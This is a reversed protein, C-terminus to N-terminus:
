RKNLSRKLTKLSTTISDPSSMAINKVENNTISQSYDGNLTQYDEKIFEDVFKETKEIQEKQAKKMEQEKQKVEDEIDSIDLMLRAAALDLDENSGLFKNIVVFFAGFSLLMETTLEFPLAEKFFLCGLAIFANSFVWIRKFKMKREVKKIELNKCNVKAKLDTVQKQLNNIDIKEM